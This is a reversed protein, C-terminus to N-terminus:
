IANKKKRGRKIQNPKDNWNQIAIEIKSALGAKRKCRTCSLRILGQRKRQAIWKRTKCNPCMKM